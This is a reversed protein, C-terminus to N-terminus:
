FFTKLVTKYPFLWFSFFPVSHFQIKICYFVLYFLVWVLIIENRYIHYKSGPANVFNVTRRWGLCHCQHLPNAEQQPYDNPWGCLKTTVMACLVRSRRLDKQVRSSSSCGLATRSWTTDTAVSQSSFHCVSHRRTGPFLDRNVKRLCLDSKKCSSQRKWPGAEM